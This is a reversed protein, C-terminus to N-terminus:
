QCPGREQGSASCLCKVLFLEVVMPCSLPSSCQPLLGVALTTPSRTKENQVTEVRADEHGTHQESRGHSLGLQCLRERM